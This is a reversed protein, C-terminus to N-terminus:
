VDAKGVSRAFQPMSIPLITQNTRHSCLTGRDSINQQRFFIEMALSFAKKHVTLNKASQVAM